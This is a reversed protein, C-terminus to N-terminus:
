VGAGRPLNDQRFVVLFYGNICVVSLAVFACFVNLLCGTAFKGPPGMIEFNSAMHIAQLRRCTPTANFSPDPCCCGLLKPQYRRCSARM